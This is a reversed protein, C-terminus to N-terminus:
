VTEKAKEAEEKKEEKKKKMYRGAAYAVAGLGLAILVFCIICVGDFLPAGALYPFFGHCVKCVGPVGAGEVFVAVPCIKDMTVTITGDGNNVVNKAMVWEGDVWSAVAVEEDPGVNADLTFTVDGGNDLHDKLEDSVPTVDFLDKVVADDGLEEKVEEPIDITGDELGELVDELANKDEEPLQDKDTVPTIRLDGEGFSVGEGSGTTGTVPGTIGPAQEGTVSDVFEGDVTAFAPMALAFLMVASLLVSAIIKKM